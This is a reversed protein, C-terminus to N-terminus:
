HLYEQEDGADVRLSVCLVSVIYGPHFPKYKDPSVLESRALHTELSIVWEFINSRQELALENFFGHEGSLNVPSRRLYIRM